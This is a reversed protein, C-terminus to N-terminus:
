NIVLLDLSIEKKKNLNNKPITTRSCLGHHILKKRHYLLIFKSYGTRSCLSGKPPPSRTAANLATTRSWAGGCSFVRLMPSIPSVPDMPSIPNM